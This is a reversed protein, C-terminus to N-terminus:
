GNGAGKAKRLTYRRNLNYAPAKWFDLMERHAEGRSKCGKQSRWEVGGTENRIEWEWFPYRPDGGKNYDKITYFAVPKPM